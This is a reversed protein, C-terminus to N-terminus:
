GLSWELESLDAYVESVVAGEDSTVELNLVANESYDIAEPGVSAIIKMDPLRYEITSRGDVTNKPDTIVSVNSDKDTIHFKYEYVGEEILKLSGRYLEDEDDYNM